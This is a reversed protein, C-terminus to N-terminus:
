QRAKSQDIGNSVSAVAVHLDPVSSMMRHIIDIEPVHFFIYM